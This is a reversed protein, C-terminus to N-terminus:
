DFYAEDKQEKRAKRLLIEKVKQSLAKLRSFETDSSFHNKLLGYEEHHVIENVFHTYLPDEIHATLDINHTEMALEMLRQEENPTLPEEKFALQRKEKLKALTEADLISPLGFLESELIRAGGMGKPHEDPPTATIIREIEDPAEGDQTKRFDKREMIRVNERLLGAILIPDHTAMIIQSHSAEMAGDTIGMAEELMSKYEYSWQPNLHTDPEDLLFLTDNDKTFRLLGIVTLLQQEGESLSNLPIAERVGDLKLKFNIELGFGALNLDDLQQFLDKPRRFPLEQKLHEGEETLLYDGAETLLSVPSFLGQLPFLSNFHFYLTQLFTSEVKRTSRTEGRKPTPVHIPTFDRLPISSHHFAQLTNLINGSLSWFRPIQPSVSQEAFTNWWPPRTLKLTVSELGVIGLKDKLFEKVEKSEDALFVFLILSSHSGDTLFLRRLRPDLGARLEEKYSQKIEKCIEGLRNSLGSYYIFINTPLYDQYNKSRKNVFQRYRIPEGNVKVSANKPDTYRANIEIEKTRCEYRLLYPYQPERQMELEAFVYAIFEILNSKAAGNKGLLVAIPTEDFRIEFNQLNRFKKIKLERLKM